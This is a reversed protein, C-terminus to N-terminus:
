TKLYKADKLSREFIFGTVFSADNWLGKVFNKSVLFFNPLTDVVKKGRLASSYWAYHPIHIKGAWFDRTSKIAVLSSKRGYNTVCDGLFLLFAGFITTKVLLYFIKMFAFNVTEFLQRSARAQKLIQQM